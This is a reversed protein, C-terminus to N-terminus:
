AVQSSLAKRAPEGNRSSAVTFTGSALQIEIM